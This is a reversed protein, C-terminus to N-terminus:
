SNSIVIGVVGLSQVGLAARSASELKREKARKKSFGELVDSIAASDCDIEKGRSSPLEARKPRVVLASSRFAM